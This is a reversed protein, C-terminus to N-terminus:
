LKYWIHKMQVSLHFSFFLPCPTLPRSDFVAMKVIVEMVVLVIVTVVVTSMRGVVVVVVGLM